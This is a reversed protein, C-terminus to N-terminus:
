SIRYFFSKPQKKKPKREFSRDPRVPSTSRLILEKLQPPEILSLFFRKCYVCAQSFNIKHAYKKGAKVSSELSETIMRNFNYMTLKAFIEQKIHEVKKSHFQMISLDYKLERFSTEIGWRIHYLDKIDSSTFKDRSLNTALYEDNGNKLQLKIIRIPEYIYTPREASLCSLSETHIIKYGQNQINERAKKRSYRNRSAVKLTIDIDLEEESPLIIKGLTAGNESKPGKIRFVFPLKNTLFYYLLEYSEYGRDAILIFPNNISNSQLMQVLAEREATQKGPNIVADAYFHNLLDYLANLHLRNWGEKDKGNYIYTDQDSENKPISIESGDVALLQYGKFLKSVSCSKTFDSFLFDFAELQIKSRKQCFASASPMSTEYNFYASLEKNISQGGIQLIIRIMKEFSLKSNRIFDTEKNTVFAARKKTLTEISNNLSNKIDTLKCMSRLRRFYINLFAEGCKKLLKDLTKQFFGLFSLM